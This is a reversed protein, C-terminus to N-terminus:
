AAVLAARIHLLLDSFPVDKPVILQGGTLQGPRTVRESSALASLFLVKVERTDPRRAMDYAAEGGDKGPMLIDVVALDPKLKSAMAVGQDASLAYFVEYEGVAELKLKLLAGVSEDDDIILIRKKEDM